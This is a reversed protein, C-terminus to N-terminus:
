APAHKGQQAGEDAYAPCSGACSGAFPVQTLKGPQVGAGSGCHYWCFLPLLFLEKEGGEKKKKKIM